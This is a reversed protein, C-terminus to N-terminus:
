QGRQLFSQYNEQNLQDIAVCQDIAFAGSKTRRLEVLHAFCGLKVGLDNGISRIYTGKSCRIRLKLYPYSYSLLEIAVQVRVPPREVVQGKRALDYLKKGNIKKASFMPPVQEINGQFAKIAEKVQELTPEILSEHTIQGETDYTDTAVGLKIVTEYEKDQSSLEDSRRTFSKGVLMVMVGTAFPDLTGCHGIKKIGTIRRLVNVLYFSSKSHPKDILLIGEEIPLKKEM